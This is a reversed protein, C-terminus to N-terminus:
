NKEYVRFQVELGGNKFSLTRLCRYNPIEKPFRSSPQVVGIREPSYKQVARLVYDDPRGKIRDGYPPNMVLWFNRVAANKKRLSALFDESPDEFLDAQEFSIECSQFQNLEKFNAAAAKLVVSDVDVGVALAFPSERFHSEKFNSVFAESKLIKPIGKYAELNFKRTRVISNLSMAEMVLTGSGCCPDLLAISNLEAPSRDSILDRVCAAALTERIPAEGRSKAYGRKHLHEGALDFSIQFQDSEVRVFIVPGNGSTSEPLKYTKIADRLTEEIRKEQGLRSKTSQVSFEIPFSYLEQAWNFKKVKDFLHPFDRSRFELRRWLIRNATKLHFVLQAALVLSAEFEIGGKAFNPESLSECHIQGELDRLYPWVEQIESWLLSEHGIQCSVFFKDAM